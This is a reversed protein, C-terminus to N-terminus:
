AVSDSGRGWLAAGLFGTVFPLGPPTRGGGPFSDSKSGAICVLSVSRCYLARLINGSHGGCLAEPCMTRLGEGSRCFVHLSTPYVGLERGEWKAKQLQVKYKQMTKCAVRRQQYQTGQYMVNQGETSPLQKKLVHNRRETLRAAEGRGQTARQLHGPCLRDEPGSVRVESCKVANM